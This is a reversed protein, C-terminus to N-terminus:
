DEDEYEYEYEYEDDDEDETNDYEEEDFNNNQIYASDSVYNNNSYLSSNNAEYKQEYGATNNAYNQNNDEEEFILFEDNNDSENSGANNYDLAQTHQAQVSQNYSNMEQFPSNEEIISETQENEDFLHEEAQKSLQTLPNKFINKEIDNTEEDFISMEKDEDFKNVYRYDNNSKISDGQLNIPKQYKSKIPQNSLSKVNFGEKSNEEFTSRAASYVDMNSYSPYTQKSTENDDLILKRPEQKQTSTEQIKKILDKIIKLLLILLLFQIITIVSIFSIKISLLKKIGRILKQKVKVIKKFLALDKESFEDKNEDVNPNENNNINEQETSVDSNEQNEDNATQSPQKITEFINNSQKQNSLSDSIPKDENKSSQFSNQNSSKPNQQNESNEDKVTIKRQNLIRQPVNMQIQEPTVTNKKTIVKTQNFVPMKFHAQPIIEIPKKSDITIKTYGKDPLSSYQQTKVDINKINTVDSIDPKAVMVNTTEPLLIVYKNDPKKNVIIKENYPKDTYINIKVTDESTQKVDMNLLENTNAFALTTYFLVSILIIIRYKLQHRHM